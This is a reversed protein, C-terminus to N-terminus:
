VAHASEDPSDTNYCWLRAHIMLTPRSLLSLGPSISSCVAWHLAPRDTWGGLFHGERESRRWRPVQQNNCVKQRIQSTSESAVGLPSRTLARVSQETRAARLAAPDPGGEARVLSLDWTIKWLIFNKNIFKLFKSSKAHTLSSKLTGCKTQNSVAEWTARNTDELFEVGAVSRRMCTKFSECETRHQM